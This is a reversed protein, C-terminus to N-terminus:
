ARQVPQVVFLHHPQQQSCMEDICGLLLLRISVLTTSAAVIHKHRVTLPQCAIFPHTSNTSQKPQAGGQAIQTVAQTQTQTQPLAMAKDSANLDSARLWMYLMCLAETDQNLHGLFIFFVCGLWTARVRTEICGGCWAVSGAALLSLAKQRVM